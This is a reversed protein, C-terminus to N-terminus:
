GAAREGFASEFEEIDEQGLSVLSFDSPTHGGGESRAVHAVFGHLMGLWRDGLDAVAQDGLLDAPVELTLRMDPGERLDRVSGSAELPHRLPMYRGRELDGAAADLGGEAPEPRAREDGTDQGGPGPAAAASFRGTYHYGIQPEPLAALVPKTAPNLFRLMGYGLGGGPVARIQEKIRKLLRGADPGGARVEAFDVPGPSLRAPYSSAFWGVTRSLDMDTSLPVRGHGKVDVLIGEAAKGRAAQWETVAAALGALLVDDVSAHFAAPVSALLATATDAPVPLLWRILATPEEAGTAPGGTEPVTAQDGFLPESGTLTGTWFDLESVTEQTVARAALENAWHRFSTPPREAVVPDLGAILAAHATVLDVLLVRWSVGDIVLHHAVIALDGPGDPGPDLWVVQLMLGRAPDLRSEADATEADLLERRASDDLGPADVRRVIDRGRFPADDPAPIDLVGNDEDLRARLVVHQRLVAEVAATLNELTVGAPAAVRASQAGARAATGNREALHWMMPTLSAPGTAIDEANREEQDATVAVRALAAPTRLEFIQRPTIMVGARRAQAAVLMSMISDGGLEFFSDEVGAQGLKLVEAFLRCLLEEMPTAPQRGSTSEALAPTPLAARDLKGNVTVPLADLVTVTAPVMYDPLRAALYERLIGGTVPDQDRQAPVVYAALRKVGPRDERAIVAAQAVAEHGTLAARGHYGRALGVGALYLEGTIGPPLPRLYEDLVFARMNDMPAGIPVVDPVTSDAAFPIQTAFATTETPGYSTRVM